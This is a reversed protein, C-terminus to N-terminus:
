AEATRDSSRGALRAHAARLSKLARYTLARVAEESIELIEATESVPLDQMYRLELVARHTEPLTALAAVVVEGELRAIVADEHGETAAPEPDDQLILHTDKRRSRAVVQHYAIRFLWSRFPAGRWEFRGIHEFARCFTEATLDEAPGPGVRNRLFAHVAGVNQRYLERFADRDGASAREVLM